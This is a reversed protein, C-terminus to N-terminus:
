IKVFESGQFAGRWEVGDIMVDICHYTSPRGRIQRVVPVSVAGIVGLHGKPIICTPRGGYGSYFPVRDVLIEVEDGVKISCKM